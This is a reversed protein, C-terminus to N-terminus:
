PGLERSPCSRWWIKAYRRRHRAIFRAQTDPRPDAIMRITARISASTAMASGLEARELIRACKKHKNAKKKHDYRGSDDEIVAAEGMLLDVVLNQVHRIQRRILTRSPTLVLWGLDSFPALGSLM